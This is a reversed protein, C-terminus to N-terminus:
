SNELTVRVGSVGLDTEWCAYGKDLLRSKCTAVAKEPAYPPILVYAFGGGGAGTLKAHLGQEAVTECIDSLADHSVNLAELLKQNYDVLRELSQHHLEISM